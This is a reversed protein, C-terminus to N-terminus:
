QRAAMAPPGGISALDEHAAGLLDGARGDGAAAVRDEHDKGWLALLDPVTAAQSALKRRSPM